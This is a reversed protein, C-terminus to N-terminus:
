PERVETLGVVCGLGVALVAIVLILAIDAVATM